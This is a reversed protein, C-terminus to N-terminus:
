AVGQAAGRSLRNMVKPPMDVGIGRLGQLFEGKNVVGDANKDFKRFAAALTSCKKQLLARLEDDTM